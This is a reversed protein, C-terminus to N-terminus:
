HAPHVASDCKHGTSRAPLASTVGDPQGLFAGVDDGNEWGV